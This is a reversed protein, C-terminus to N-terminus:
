FWFGIGIGLRIRRRKTEEPEQRVIKTQTVRKTTMPQHIVYQERPDPIFIGSAHREALIASIEDSKKKASKYSSTSRFVAFSIETDWRKKEEMLDWNTKGKQTERWKAWWNDHWEKKSRKNNEIATQALEWISTFTNRIGM